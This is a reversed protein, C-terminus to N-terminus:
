VPEWMEDDDLGLSMEEATHALALSLLTYVYMGLYIYVYTYTYTYSYWTSVGIYLWVTIDVWCDVRMFKNAFACGRCCCCRWFCSSTAMGDVGRHTLPCLSPASVHYLEAGRIVAMYQGLIRDRVSVCEWRWPFWTMLCPFCKLSVFFRPLFRLYFLVSKIKRLLVTAILDVLGLPMEKERTSWCYCYNTYFLKVFCFIWLPCCLSFFLADSFSGRSKEEHIKTRRWVHPLLSPKTPHTLTITKHNNLALPRLLSSWSTSLPSPPTGRLLFFHFFFFCFTLWTVYFVTGIIWGLHGLRTLSCSGASWDHVVRPPPQRPPLLTM